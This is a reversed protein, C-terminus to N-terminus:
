ALGDFWLLENMNILTFADHTLTAYIDTRPLADV